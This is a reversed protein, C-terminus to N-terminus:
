LGIPASPNSSTSHGVDVFKFGDQGLTLMPFFKPGDVEVIRQWLLYLKM